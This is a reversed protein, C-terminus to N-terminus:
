HVMQWQRVADIPCLLMLVNLTLNDRICFLLVLETTLFVVISLRWGLWRALYFGLACSLVDGMSNIISDGEYGLAITAERYRGIVFQSNELVEWGAEVVTALALRWTLSWRRGAWALVWFFIVGHLIHSFTYPDVLHQSCHASWIDGAWLNPTGCACWWSRGEWREVSVAALVVLVTVLWPVLRARHITVFRNLM